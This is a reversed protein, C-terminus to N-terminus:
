RTCSNGCRDRGAIVIQSRAFRRATKPRRRLLRVAHNITGPVVITLHRDRQEVPCRVRDLHGVRQWEVVVDPPQRRHSKPVAELEDGLSSERSRRGRVNRPAPQLGGVDPPLTTIRVGPLWRAGTGADLVRGSADILDRTVPPVTAGGDGADPQITSDSLAHVLFGLPQLEIAFVDEISGASTFRGIYGFLRVPLPATTSLLGFVLRGGKAPADGAAPRGVLNASALHPLAVQKALTDAVWAALRTAATDTQNVTVVHGSAHVRVAVGGPAVCLCPALQRAVRNAFMVVSPGHMTAGTDALAANGVATAMPTLLQYETRLAVARAIEDLRAAAARRSLASRDRLVQLAQVSLLVALAVALGALAFVTALRSSPIYRRLPLRMSWLIHPAEHWHACASECM